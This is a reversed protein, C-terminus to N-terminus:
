PKNSLSSDGSRSAVVGKIAKTEERKRKWKMEIGEKQMPQTQVTRQSADDCERANAYANANAIANIPM